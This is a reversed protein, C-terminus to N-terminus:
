QAFVIGHRYAIKLLELDVNDTQQANNFMEPRKLFREKLWLSGFQYGADNGNHVYDITDHLRHGMTVHYLMVDCFFWMMDSLIQDNILVPFSVYGQLESNSIIVSLSNSIWTSNIIDGIVAYCM